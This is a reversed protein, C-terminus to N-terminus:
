ARWIPQVVGEPTVELIASETPWGNGIDTDIFVDGSLSVAIGNSPRFVKKAGLAADLASHSSGLAGLEAVQVIRGDPQFWEFGDRGTGIM